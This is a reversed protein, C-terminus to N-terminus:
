NDTIFYLTNANPTSILNYQAQTGIWFTTNASTNPETVGAVFSQVTAAEHPGIYAKELDADVSFATGASGNVQFDAQDIVLDGTM